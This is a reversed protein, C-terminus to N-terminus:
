KSFCLSQILHPIVWCGFETTGMVAVCHVLKVNEKQERFWAELTPRSSIFAPPRPPPPPMVPFWKCTLRHYWPTFTAMTLCFDDSGTDCTSPMCPKYQVAQFVSNPGTCCLAVAVSVPHLSQLSCGTLM